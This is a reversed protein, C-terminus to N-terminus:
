SKLREWPIPAGGLLHYHLHFVSQGGDAGCNTVISFGSDRVGEAEAVAAIAEHVEELLALPESHNKVDLVDQVHEKPILLVHTPCLPNIDRIAILRESEYVKESPIEGRVIRCFLCNDM